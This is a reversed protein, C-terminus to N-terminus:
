IINFCIFDVFAARLATPVSDGQAVEAGVASRVGQQRGESVAKPLGGRRSHRLVPCCTMQMVSRATNRRASSRLTM